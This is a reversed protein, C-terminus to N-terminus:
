DDSEDIISPEAGSQRRQQKEQREKARRKLKRERNKKNKKEREHEEKTKTEDILRQRKTAKSRLLDRRKKSVRARRSPNTADPHQETKANSTVASHVIIQGKHAPLHIVRWPTATGPWCRQAIQQLEETSVASTAFAELQQTRLHKTSRDTLYYSLPRTVSLGPEADSIVSPSRIKVVNIQTSQPRFLNFAFGEEEHEQDNHQAKARTPPVVNDVIEFDLRYSMPQASGDADDSGSDSRSDPSDIDFIDSRKVRKAAPEEFMERTTSLRLLPIEALKSYLERNM